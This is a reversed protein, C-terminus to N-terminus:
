LCGLRTGGIYAVAPSSSAAAIERDTLQGIVYVVRVAPADVATEGRAVLSPSFFAMKKSLGPFPLLPKAHTPEDTRPCSEHSLSGALWQRILDALPTPASSSYSPAPESALCRDSLWQREAGNLKMLRLSLRCLRDVHRSPVPCREGAIDTASEIFEKVRQYSATGELIEGEIKSLESLRTVQSRRHALELLHLHSALLQKDRLHSPLIEVHTKLQGISGSRTAAEEFSSLREIKDKVLAPLEYFPSFRHERWIPDEDPDLRICRDTPMQAPSGAPRYWCTRRIQCLDGLVAQYSLDHRWASVPDAERDLILVELDSRRKTAGSRQHATPATPRLREDLETALQQAAPSRQYRVVPVPAHPHSSVLRCLAELAELDHGGTRSNPTFVAPDQVEIPCPLVVAPLDGLGQAPESTLFVRHGQQGSRVAALSGPCQPDLYYIVTMWRGPHQRRVDVQSVQMIGLDILETLTFLSSVLPATTADLALLAPMWEKKFLQRELHQRLLGRLSPGSAQRRSVLDRRAPAPSRSAAQEASM